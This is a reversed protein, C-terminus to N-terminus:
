PKRPLVSVVSSKTAVPPFPSSVLQQEALCHHGTIQPVVVARSGLSEDLLFALVEQLLSAGGGWSTWGPLGAYHSATRLPPRGTDPVSMVLWQVGEVPTPCLSHAGDQAMDRLLINTNKNAM